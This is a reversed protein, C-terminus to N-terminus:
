EQDLLRGIRHGAPDGVIRKLDAEPLERLQKEDIVGASLLALYDGRGVEAGLVHALGLAETPLGLELQLGLNDVVNAGFTRGQLAAVQIVADIVDRTRAAVARIHGAASRDRTHQLLNREIEAM